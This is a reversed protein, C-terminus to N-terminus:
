PPAQSEPELPPLPQPADAPPQDPYLLRVNYARGSDPDHLNSVGRYELLKRDATRYVLQLSPAMLRLLSDAEVRLRLAPQGQYDIRQEPVARLRFIALESAMAFPFSFTQGALLQDFRDVLLAHFGSDAAMGAEWNLVKSRERGRVTRSLTLGSADLAPIGEAYRADPQSYHYLPIYPNHSFDLAKATILSGDPRHYRILGSVWCGDVVRQEHVETYLYHAHDLDYAYGYFRLLETQEAQGAAACLLALLAVLGRLLWVARDNGPPKVAPPHFPLAGRGM